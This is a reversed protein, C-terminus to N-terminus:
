SHSAHRLDAWGHVSGQKCTFQAAFLQRPLSSPCESAIDGCDPALGVFVHQSYVEDCRVSRSLREINPHLPTIQMRHVYHFQTFNDSGKSVFDRVRGTFLLRSGDIEVRTCCRLLQIPNDYLRKFIQHLDPLGTKTRM